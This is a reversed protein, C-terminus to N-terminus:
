TEEQENRQKQCSSLPTGVGMQGQRPARGQRQHRERHAMGDDPDETDDRDGPDETDM